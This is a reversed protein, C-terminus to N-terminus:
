GALESQEETETREEDPNIPLEVRIETGEGVRSSIRIDGRHQKIIQYCIMLGLGTGQEKTTFFPEGLKPIKDEPIGCGQDIFRVSIKRDGARRLGIVLEGGGAMAEMANKMMNIFVQEMQDRDCQILPLGEELETRIVVRNLIAQTNMFEALNLLLESLNTRSYQSKSPKALSMFQGVIKNIRNIEELMIDYYASKEGNQGRLLQLFGKLATLPNRIEHAVGAAMKGVLSLKESQRIYAETRKRETIDRVITLLYDSRDITFYRSSVDMPINTGDDKRLLGEGGARFHVGSDPFIEAPNRGLLEERDYGLMACAANNVDMFRVPEKNEDLQILFVADKAHHFIEEFKAEQERLRTETRKLSSIDIGSGIIATVADGARLPQLSVLLTFGPAPTWEFIQETGEWTKDYYGTIIGAAERPAFDFLEKGVMDEPRLRIRDLLLGEVLMTIYRNGSRVVKFSFGQQKHLVEKMEAEYRAKQAVVEKIWSYYFGRLLYYYGVTKLVHGFLNDIDNVNRYFTFFLESTMIIVTASFVYLFAARKTKRYHDLVLLVNLLHILCIAYELMNKFATTGEGEVVMLPLRDAFLLIVSVSLALYGLAFARVLRKSRLFRSDERLGLALSFLVAEGFRAGVWFWTGKQVSSEVILTPMGKFTLTHFLDITGIMLFGTALLFFRPTRMYKEVIGSQAFLFFCVAISSMELITHIELYSEPHYSHSFALRLMMVITFFLVLSGMRRVM